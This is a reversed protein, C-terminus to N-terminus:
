RNENIKSDPCDFYDLCGKCENLSIYMKLAPCYWMEEVDKQEMVPQEQKDKHIMENIAESTKTTGNIMCGIIIIPMVAFLVMIILITIEITGM